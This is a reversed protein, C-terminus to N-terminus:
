SNTLTRTHKHQYTHRNSVNLTCNVAAAIKTLISVAACTFQVHYKCLHHNWEIRHPWRYDVTTIATAGVTACICRSYCITIANCGDTRVRRKPPAIVFIPVFYHSTLTRRSLPLFFSRHNSITEANQLLVSCWGATWGISILRTKGGNEKTAQEINFGLHPVITLTNNGNLYQSTHM